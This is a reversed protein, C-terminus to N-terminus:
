LGRGAAPRSEGFVEAHFRYLAAGRRWADPPLGAKLCTQTVFTVSDWEWEIAVQPLLLGRARGAEIVIGHRGIELEHPETFPELPGLVSIELHIAALEGIGIPSFRPDRTAAAAACQAVCAVLTLDDEIRGICGRLDGGCRLTVFAGASRALGGTAPPPEYARGHVTASVAARAIELLRRQEDRTLGGDWSSARSSDDSMTMVGMM